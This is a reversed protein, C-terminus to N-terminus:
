DMVEVGNGFFVVRGDPLVATQEYPGGNLTPPEVERVAGTDPDYLGAWTQEQPEYWWGRVYLQGNPLPVAEDVCHPMSGGAHFTATSPDFIEIPTEGKGDSSGDRRLAHVEQCRLGPVLVQGAELTVVQSRATLPYKSDDPHPSIAPLSGSTSFTGSSPDYIETTSSQTGPFDGTVGGVVLVRGEPLTAMTHGARPAMMSGTREFRGTAPDFLEAAAVPDETGDTTLGGSVLVRGDVLKIAGFIWRATGLPIPGSTTGTSPDWLEATASTITSAGQADPESLDGGIILVRGDTLVISTPTSRRSQYPGSKSLRASQSEWIVTGEDDFGLIRGDPLTVPGVIGDNPILTNVQAIRGEYTRIADVPTVEVPRQLLRSGIILGGAIITALLGVVIAIRVAPVLGDLGLRGSRPWRAPGVLFARIGRRMTTSRATDLAAEVAESRINAPGATELWTALARDFDTMSTM